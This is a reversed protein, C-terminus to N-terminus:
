TPCNKCGGEIKQTTFYMSLLMITITISVILWRYKLLVLVTGVGLFGLLTTLCGACSATGFLAALFASGSTAATGKGAKMKAQRYAYIQLNMNLAALLALVSLLVYDKITFITLQFTLSNGPILLVPILLFLFFMGAALVGILVRHKREKLMRQITQYTIRFKKM